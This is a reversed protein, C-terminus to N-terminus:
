RHLTSESWTENGQDSRIGDRKLGEAIRLLNKGDLFEQYIRRVVAAEEEIIVIQGEEHTSRQHMCRSVM